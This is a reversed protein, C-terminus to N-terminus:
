PEALGHRQGVHGGHGAQRDALESALELGPDPERRMLVKQVEPDVLRM